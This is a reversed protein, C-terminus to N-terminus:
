KLNLYRGKELTLNYLHYITEIEQREEHNYINVGFIDLYSSLSLLGTQRWYITEFSSVHYFKIQAAPTM